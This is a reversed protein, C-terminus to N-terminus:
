DPSRRRLYFELLWAVGQLVVAILLFPLCTYIM